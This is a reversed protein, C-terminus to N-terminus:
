FFWDKINYIDTKQQNKAREINVARYAEIEKLKVDNLDQHKKLMFDWEKNKEKEELEKEEKETERLKTKISSVLKELDGYCSSAPNIESLYTAAENAANMDEGKSWVIKAQTILEKCEQNILNEYLPKVMKSSKKYCKSSLSPVSMAKNLADDFRGVDKLKKIDGIIFDCNKNYYDIISTKAEALLQKVNSNNARINKLASIYAKNESNGVGKLTLNTSAYKIGSIGDGVFLAVDITLTVKTPAGPIINKALVSINPTIIFRSEFGLSGGYGNRTVIQALKSQLNNKVIPSIFEIQNSVYPIITIRETDSLKKQAHIGLAFLYFALIVLRTSSKM